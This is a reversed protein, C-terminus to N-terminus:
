ITSVTLKTEKIIQSENVVLSSSILKLTTSMGFKAKSDRLSSIPSIAGLGLFGFGAEQLLEQQVEKLFSSKFLAINESAEDGRFDVRVNIYNTEKYTFAKIDDNLQEQKILTEHPTTPTMNLVYISAYNTPEKFETTADFVELDPKISKIYSVLLIMTNKYM